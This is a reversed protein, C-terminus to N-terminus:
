RDPPTVKEASRQEDIARIASILRHGQHFLPSLKHREYSLDDEQAEATFVGNGTVVYFRIFGKKPLVFLETKKLQDLYKKALAILQLSENRVEAHEGAGIIGGGNSFYISSAGHAVAVLTAVAEPYGTEMLLALVDNKDSSELGLQNPSLTLVQKRLDDYVETTQYEAALSIKGGLLCLVLGFLLHAYKKMRKNRRVYHM